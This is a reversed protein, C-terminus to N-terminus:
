CGDDYLFHVKKRELLRNGSYHDLLGELVPTLYDEDFRKPKRVFRGIFEYRENLCDNTEFRLSDGALVIERSLCYLMSDGSSVTSDALFITRVYFSNANSTDELLDFQFFYPIDNEIERPVVYHGVYDTL